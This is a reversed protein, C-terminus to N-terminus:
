TRQSRWILWLRQLFVVELAGFVLAYVWTPLRWVPLALLSLIEVLSVVLWVMIHRGVATSRWDSRWGYLGITVLLTVAAIVLEAIVVTTV